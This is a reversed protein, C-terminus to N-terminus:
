IIKTIDNTKIRNTEAGWIKLLFNRQSKLQDDTFVYDLLERNKIFQEITFVILNNRKLFKYTVSNEFFYIKAGIYLMVLINGLAQQRIHGMFVNGCSKIIEIYSNYPLYERIIRVENGLHKLAQAEIIDGYHVDGYNLPVVIKKTNEKLKLFNFIDLHNNTQTASNGILIDNQIVRYSELGSIFKELSGYNWNVFKPNFQSYNDVILDFDEKLVPAFYNIRNIIKLIKRRKIKKIISTSNVIFKNNSINLLRSTLPKYINFYPLTDILFYYDGGWGIWLIPTKMERNLLITYYNSNLYHIVVLDQLNLYDIFAKTSLISFDNKRNEFNIFKYDENTDKVFIEFTNQFNNVASFQDYAYRIFKDDEALHVIKKKNM